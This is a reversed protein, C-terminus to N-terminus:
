TTKQGGSMCTCECVLVFVYTCAYVYVGMWLFDLFTEFGPINPLTNLGITKCSMYFFIYYSPITFCLMCSLHHHHLFATPWINLFLYFCISPSISPIPSLNALVLLTYLLKIFILNHLNIIYVYKHTLSVSLSV